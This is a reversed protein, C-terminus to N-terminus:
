RRKLWKLMDDNVLHHCVGKKIKGSIWYPSASLVYNTIPLKVAQEMVALMREYGNSYTRKATDKVGDLTENKLVDFQNILNESVLEMVSRRISEAAYFDIRRDDIDEKYDPYNVYDDTTFSSLGEADGYAMHLEDIYKQEFPAVKSPVAMNKPRPLAEIKKQIEEILKIDIELNQAPEINPSNNIIDLIIHTLLEACGYHPMDSTIGNFQLWAEVDDYSESDDIRDYIWSSFKNLDRHDYLYQAHNKSITRNGRVYKKITDNKRQLIECADVSGDSIFNEILERFYEDKKRGFSIYPYLGLAYESFTM